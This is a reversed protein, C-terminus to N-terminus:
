SVPSVGIAVTVALKNAAKSPTTSGMSPFQCKGYKLLLHAVRDGACM